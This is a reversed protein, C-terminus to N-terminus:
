ESQEKILREFKLDSFDKPYLLSNIKAGALEFAHPSRQSSLERALKAVALGSRLIERIAEPSTQPKGCRRIWYDLAKLDSPQLRVGVLTGKGTPLPGRRKPNKLNSKMSVTNVCNSVYALSLAIAPPEGTGAFRTELVRRNIQVSPDVTRSPPTCLAEALLTCSARHDERICAM